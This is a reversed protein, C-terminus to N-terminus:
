IEVEAKTNDIDYAGAKYDADSWSNLTFLTEKANRKYVLGTCIATEVYKALGSGSSSFKGQNSFTEQTCTIYLRGDETVYSLLSNGGYTNFNGGPFIIISQQIYGNRTAPNEIGSKLTKSTVDYYVIGYLTSYLKYEKKGNDYRFSCTAYTNYWSLNSGTSYVLHKFTLRSIETLTKADYVCCVGGNRDSDTCFIFLLDDKTAPLFGHASYKSVNTTVSDSYTITNGTITGTTVWSDNNSAGGYFIITNDDVMYSFKVNTPRTGARTLPTAEGTSITYRTDTTGNNSGLGKYLYQGDNTIAVYSYTTSTSSNSGVSLAGRVKTLLGQADISYIYAKYTYPNSGTYTTFVVYSNDKSYTFYEFTGAIEADEVQSVTQWAESGSEMKKTSVTKTNFDVCLILNKYPLTICYGSSPSPQGQKAWAPFVRVYEKAGVVDLPDIKAAMQILTDSATVGAGKDNLKQALVQKGLGIDTIFETLQDTSVINAVKTAVQSVTATKLENADSQAVAVLDTDNVTTAQELDSYQKANAAM